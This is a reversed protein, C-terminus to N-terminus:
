ARILWLGGVATPPTEQTGLTVTTSNNKDNQYSYALWDASRAASSIQVEDITGQFFSGAAIRNAIATASAVGTDLTGGGAPTADSAGNLYVKTNTGDITGDVRSFVGTSITTGGPLIIPSGGVFPIFEIVSSTNIRFQFLRASGGDDRDVVSRASGGVSGPKIWASVTLATPRAVATGCDVYQSSGNFDLGNAVEAAVLEGSTMSGQSTGINTGTVWDYMQPASGSPDEEMPIFLVFNGDM